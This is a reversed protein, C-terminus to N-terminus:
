RSGFTAQLQQAHQLHRRLRDGHREAVERLEADAEADRSQDLLEVARSLDTVVIALYSRDFAANRAQEMDPLAPSSESSRLTLEWKASVADIADSLTRLDALFQTAFERVATNTARSSALRSAQTGRQTLRHLELLSSEAAESLEPVGAAPVQGPRVPPPTAPPTTATPQQAPDQTVTPASGPPQQVPVSQAHAALAVSGLFLLGTRGLRSIAPQSLRHAPTMAFSYDLRPVSVMPRIAGKRVPFM